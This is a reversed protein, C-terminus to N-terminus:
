FSIRFLNMTRFNLKKMAEIKQNLAEVKKSQGNKSYLDSLASLILKSDPHAQLYIEYLNIAEKYQKNKLYFDAITKVRGERLSAIFEENKFKKMLQLFESLDDARVANRILSFKTWSTLEESVGFRNARQQYYDFVYPLGGKDLFAQLTTFQLEPYFFFYNTLGNYITHYPTSRHSENTLLEDSWNANEQRKLVEKLQNIGENVQNENESVTFYLLKKQSNEVKYLSDIKNMRTETIPFPSALFYGSFVDPKATMLELLFAGGYEWGFVLNENSSSYASDVYPVVERTLFDMFKETEQFHGFRQPYQNNIGVVIFEPTLKFQIFSQLLSVGYLFFRQGDLLYLVPYKKSKPDYGEPTFIQITRNEDLYQSAIQHNEGVSNASQALISKPRCLMIALIMMLFYKIYIM